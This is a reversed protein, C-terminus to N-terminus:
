PDEATGVRPWASILIQVLTALPIAFFVGWFGWIGGFFLIAVIIAVPHLNNTESFLLPVLVVADLTQIVFYTVGLVIFETSWGWQFFAVALVPITVVTAGIYPIIVSIGVLAGLLIAYKLDLLLFAATSAIGVILLELVKGRVYNGIQVDMESWVRTMLGREPPMFRGTWELIEWKDKLFFFVLLPFMILYIVLTILGTVSSLSMSVAAKGLAGVDGRIATMIEDVQDESIYTFKRPLELLATHGRKLMEPVTAALETVQASLLPIVAFFVFLYLAFFVLYVIIVARLRPTGRDTLMVVLDDLFYAIVIAALVPMLMSGMFIVAAFGVVLLMALLAAQSDSLYRRYWGALYQTITKQKAM